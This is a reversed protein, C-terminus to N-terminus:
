AAAPEEIPLGAWMEAANGILGLGGPSRQWIRIESNDLDLIYHAHKGNVFMAYPTVVIRLTRGRLTLFGIPTPGALPRRVTTRTTKNKM